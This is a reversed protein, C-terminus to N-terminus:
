HGTVTQTKSTFAFTLTDLLEGDAAHLSLVVTRATSGRGTLTVQPTFSV